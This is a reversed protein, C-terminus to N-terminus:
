EELLKRLEVEVKEVFVSFSPDLLCVRLFPELDVQTLPGPLYEQPLTVATEGLYHQTLRKIPLSGHVADPELGVAKEQRTQRTSAPPEAPPQNPHPSADDRTAVPVYEKLKRVADACENIAAARSSGDFQMRMMRTEGLSEHGQVIFLYGSEVITVNIAPKNDKAEFIKWTAKQKGESDSVLRGYRKLRWSVGTAM